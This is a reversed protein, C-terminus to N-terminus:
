VGEAGRKLRHIREGVNEISLCAFLDDDFVQSFKRYEELSIQDLYQKKELSYQVLQGIIEHAERFTIGKNVLYDVLETAGIYSKQASIYM